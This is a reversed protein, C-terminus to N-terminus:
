ARRRKSFALLGGAGILLLAATAPEPVVNIPTAGSFNAATPTNAAGQIQEESQYTTSGFVFGDYSGNALTRTGTGDQASYTWTGGNPYAQAGGGGAVYYVYGPNYSPDQAKPVSGLTVSVLFPSELQNPTTGFDIYGAGQISNGATYYDYVGGFSDSYTGNLTPTGFVSNLLDQGYVLAGTPYNVQWKFTATTSGAGFPGQILLYSTDARLSAATAFLAVALTISKKKMTPRRNPSFLGACSVACLAGRRSSQDRMAEKQSSTKGLAGACAPDRILVVPSINQSRAQPKAEHNERAKGDKKGGEDRSECPSAM